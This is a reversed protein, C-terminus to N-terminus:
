FPRKVGYRRMKDYLASRSIRLVALAGRKGEIRWGSQELTREIYRKELDALSPNGSFLEEPMEGGGLAEVGRSTETHEVPDPLTLHRGGTLVVSQEIVNRLERINGPWSWSELIRRNEPSFDQVCERHHWHSFFHLYYRAIALIDAKRERLPPIKLNIVAIRYYLDARFLGQRVAHTIDRNSAAILRFNVSITQTGGVRHFCREQLVRLLKAQVRTSAETFEDLFLTGNEAMEVLGPKSTMAGTFSGKEHGFFESEFLEDQLSAMNIIVLRGSRGSKEHIYRAVMEKGVGSEGCLLISADTKAALEVDGLFRGMEDSVCIMEGSTDALTELRETHRREREMVRSCEWALVRGIDKLVNEELVTRVEPLFAGVHCLAYVGDPRCDIPIGILMSGFGMGGEQVNDLILPAGEAVLEMLDPLSAYPYTVSELKGGLVAVLRLPAHPYPVHFLYGQTTGLIRASEALLVQSFAEFQEWTRHPSFSERYAELLARSSLNADGHKRMYSPLLALLEEPWFFDKLCDYMPWADSVLLVAKEKDNRRLALSALALRTKAAELPCGIKELLALSDQYLGLAGDENGGRMLVNGSLRAAVGRLMRNPGKLCRQLEQEASYCPLPPCGQEQFACLLELLAGGLYIPREYGQRRAEDLASHLVKYAAKPNGSLMHYYALHRANTVGSVIDVQPSVGIQAIDLQELAKEYQGMRLYLAALQGRISRALQNDSRAAFMRLRSLLLGAALEFNGRCSAAFSWHRVYFMEVLHHEQARLKRSARSFLNMAQEYNGEIFHYIGLYPTAQEFLDPEKLAELAAYGRAMIAHFRPNGHEPTNCVNISGILLDFLAMDRRDGFKVALGRARFFLRALSPTNSGSCVILPHVDRCLRRYRKAGDASLGRLGIGLLSRHVLRLVLNIGAPRLTNMRSLGLGLMTELARLGEGDAALRLFSELGSGSPRALLFSCAEKHAQVREVLRFRRKRGSSPPCGPFAGREAEALPIQALQALLEPSWKGEFLDALLTGVASDAYWAKEKAM